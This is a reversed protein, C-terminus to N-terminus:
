PHIGLFHVLLKYPSFIFINILKVKAANKGKQRADNLFSGIKGGTSSHTMACNKECHLKLLEVFAQPIIFYEEGWM